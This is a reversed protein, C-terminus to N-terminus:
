RQVESGEAARTPVVDASSQKWAIQMYKSIFHDLAELRGRLAGAAIHGEGSDLVDVLCNAEEIAKELTLSVINEAAGVRDDRTDFGSIAISIIDRDKM